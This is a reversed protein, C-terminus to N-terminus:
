TIQETFVSLCFGEGNYEGSELIEEINHDQHDKILEEVTKLIMLDKRFTM